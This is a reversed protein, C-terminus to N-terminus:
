ATARLVRWEGEIGRLQHEGQDDFTIGAGAVLPPVAGSVFVDSPGALDAVRAAIHVAIGFIDDSHLEVEGTHIGSRVECGLSKMQDRIRTGCRIARAPGSFTALIGDGMTKVLKGEGRTIEARAVSEFEDMLERFKHDGLQHAKRSSDCVDTFLITALVRDRDPGHRQGTLFEEVEDVISDWDGVFAFHNDGPLEVLKSDPIKDALYRANDIAVVPDETRHLILTPIRITPLVLRVDTKSLIEFARPLADKSVSGRMWRAAWAVFEPDPDAFSNIGAAIMETGWAETLFQVEVARDEPSPAWPYDPQRVTAAFSGYLILSSFRDPHTAALLACLAGAENMGLLATRTSGAADLVAIVDDMGEELTAHGCLRDSLGSGRRDFSILRTFRTVRDLGKRIVGYGDLLDLNSFWPPVFLLDVDGEGSVSYAINIDGNKAYGIERKVSAITGNRARPTSWLHRAAPDGAIEIM